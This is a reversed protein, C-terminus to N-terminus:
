KWFGKCGIPWYYLEGITPSVGIASLYLKAIVLDSLGVHRERLAVEESMVKGGELGDM